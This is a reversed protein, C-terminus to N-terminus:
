DISNFSIFISIILTKPLYINNKLGTEASSKSMVVVINSWSSRHWIILSADTFFIYGHNIPTVSCKDQVSQKKVLLYMISLICMKISKNELMVGSGATITLSEYRLSTPNHTASRPRSASKANIYQLVPHFNQFYFFLMDEYLTIQPIQIKIRCM